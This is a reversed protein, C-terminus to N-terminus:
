NEHLQCHQFIDFVLYSMGCCFYSTILDKKNIKYLALCFSRPGSREKFIYKSVPLESGTFCIVHRFIQM